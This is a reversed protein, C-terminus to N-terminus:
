DSTEQRITLTAVFVGQHCFMNDSPCKNISPIPPITFYSLEELTYIAKIMNPKNSGNRQFVKAGNFELYSNKPMKIRISGNISGATSTLKATVIGSRSKANMSLYVDKADIKNTNRFYLRVDYSKGIEGHIESTFEGCGISLGQGGIAVGVAPHCDVGFVNSNFGINITNISSILEISDQNDNVSKKESCSKFRITIGIATLTAIAISIIMLWDYIIKRVPTKTVNNDTM